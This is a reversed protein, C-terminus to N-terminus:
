KTLIEKKIEWHGSKQSGIRELFGNKKLSDINKLIARKTLGLKRGIEESTIHPNNQIATLVLEKTKEM